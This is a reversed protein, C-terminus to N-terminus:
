RSPINKLASAGFWVAVMLCIYVVSQETQMLYGAFALGLTIASLSLPLRMPKTKTALGASFLAIVLIMGLAYGYNEGIEMRRCLEFLAIIALLYRGWTQMKFSRDLAKALISSVLLPAGAYLALNSLMRALTDSDMSNSTLTFEGIVALIFSLISLRAVKIEASSDISEKTGRFLLLISALSALMLGVLSLTTLM